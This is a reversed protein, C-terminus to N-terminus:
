GDLAALVLSADDFGSLSAIGGSLTEKALVILERLMEVFDRRVHREPFNKHAYNHTDSIRPVKALQAQASAIPLEMAVPSAEFTTYREYNLCVEESM